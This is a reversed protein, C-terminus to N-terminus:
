DELSSYAARLLLNEWRTRLRKEPDDEPSQPSEVYVVVVLFTYTQHLRSDRPEVSHPAEFDQPDWAM